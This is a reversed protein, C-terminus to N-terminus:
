LWLWCGLLGVALGFWGVVLSVARLGEAELERAEDSWPFWEWRQWADGIM